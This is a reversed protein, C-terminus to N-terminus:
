ASLLRSRIAKPSEGTWRRVARSFASLESYGLLFAVESLPLYRQKLYALALEYRTAQM